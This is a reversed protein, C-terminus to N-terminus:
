RMQATNGYIHYSRREALGTSFEPTSGWYYLRARRFTPPRTKRHLNSIQLPIQPLQNWFFGIKQFTTVRRCSLRQSSVCCNSMSKNTIGSFYLEALFCKVKKPPPYFPLLFDRPLPFTSLSASSIPIFSRLPVLLFRLENLSFTCFHYPSTYVIAIILHGSHPRSIESAALAQGPQPAGTRLAPQITRNSLGLAM